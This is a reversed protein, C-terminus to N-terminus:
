RTKLRPVELLRKREADYAVWPSPLDYLYRGLRFKSCARKFAQAEAATGAVSKPSGSAEGSSSRTLGHITLECIIREGWPQYTVSWDGGCVANL